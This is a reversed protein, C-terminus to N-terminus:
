ATKYEAVREGTVPTWPTLESQLHEGEQDRDVRVTKYRGQDHELIYVIGDSVRAYAGVVGTM